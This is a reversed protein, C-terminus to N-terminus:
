DIIQMGLKGVFISKFATYMSHAKNWFSLPLTFNKKYYSILTNGGPLLM